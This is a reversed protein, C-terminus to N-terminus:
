WEEIDDSIAATDIKAYIRTTQIDAHRLHAAVRGLDNTQQYYRTGASHRLGHVAAGQYKVGARACLRRFRKRAHDSSWPLVYENGRQRNAAEPSAALARLAEALRRTVSVDAAKGGKGSRVRLTGRELDLDSWLLDAMEGIRLGAHAGLLVLVREAVEALELLAEVEADRYPRRKEWAPTPDKGASVDEFPRAETAGSWRLAKYLTRAAALKVQLTAPAPAKGRAGDPAVGAELRRLYLVGADRSPRLLNEGAWAGLLDLVGSRYTRLTHKSARAGRSGHLFLYAEVLAWLEDPDRESAARAARRRLEDPPLTAWVEARALQDGAFRELAHRNPPEHPDSPTM